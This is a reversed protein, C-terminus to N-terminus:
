GDPVKGASMRGDLPGLEETSRSNDSFFDCKGDIGAPMDAFWSQWFADPTATYRYCQDRRPCTLSTKFSKNEGLPIEGRCMTMDPM